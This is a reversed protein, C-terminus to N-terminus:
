YEQVDYESSGCSSEGRPLVAVAREEEEQVACCLGTGWLM